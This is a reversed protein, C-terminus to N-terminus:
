FFTRLRNFIFRSFINIKSKEKKKFERWSKEMPKITRRKRKDVGIWWSGRNSIIWEYHMYYYLEEGREGRKSFTKYLMERCVNWRTKIMEQRRFSIEGAGSFFCGFYFYYFFSTSGWEGWWGVVVVFCTTAIVFFFVLWIMGARGGAAM